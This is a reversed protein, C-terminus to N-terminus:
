TPKLSARGKLTMLFTPLPKVQLWPAKGVGISMPFIIMALRTASKGYQYSFQKKLEELVIPDVSVYGM